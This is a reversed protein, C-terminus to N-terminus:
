NEYFYLYRFIVFALLRNEKNKECIDCPTEEENVEM